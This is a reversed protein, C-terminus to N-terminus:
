WAIVGRLLNRFVYIFEANAKREKWPFHITQFLVAIEKM